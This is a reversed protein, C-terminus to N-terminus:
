IRVVSFACACERKTLMRLDNSICSIGNIACIKDGIKLGSDKSFSECDFGVITHENKDSWIDIGFEDNKKKVKFTHTISPHDALAINHFQNLM